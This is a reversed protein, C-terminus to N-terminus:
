SRANWDKYVIAGEVDPCTSTDGYDDDDCTVEVKLFLTNQYRHTHLLNFPTKNAKCM